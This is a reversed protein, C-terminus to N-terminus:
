VVMRRLVGTSVKGAGNQIYKLFTDTWLCSLAGRRFFSERTRQTVSFINTFLIVNVQVFLDFLVIFLIVRWDNLKILDFSGM